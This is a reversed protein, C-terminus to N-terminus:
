RRTHATKCSVRGVKQRFNVTGANDLFELLTGPEVGVGTVLNISPNGAAGGGGVAVQTAVSRTDETVATVQLSNGWAGRDLAQVQAMPGHETLAVGSPHTAIPDTDV